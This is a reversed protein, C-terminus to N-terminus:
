ETQRSLARAKRSDVLDAKATQRLQVASSMFRKSQEIRHFMYDIMMPEWIDSIECDSANGTMDAPEAFYYVVISDMYEVHYGDILMSRGNIAYSGYGRAILGLSDPSSRVLVGKIGGDLDVVMAFNVSIFDAQMTIRTFGTGTDILWEIATDKAIPGTIAAVWDQAENAWQTLASDSFSSTAVSDEGTAGRILQKIEGLTRAELPSPTFWSVSVLVILALIITKM